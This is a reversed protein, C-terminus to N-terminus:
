CCLFVYWCEKILILDLYSRFLTKTIRSNSICSSRRRSSVLAQRIRFKLKCSLLLRIHSTVIYPYICRGKVQLDGTTRVKNCRWHHWGWKRWCTVTIIYHYGLSTTYCCSCSMRIKSRRRCSSCYHRSSCRCTRIYVILHNCYSISYWWEWCCRDCIIYPHSISTILITIIIHRTRRYYDLWCFIWCSQLCTM